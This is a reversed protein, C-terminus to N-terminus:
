LIPRLKACEHSFQPRERTQASFKTNIDAYFLKSVVRIVPGGIVVRAGLAPMGTRGSIGAVSVGARERVSIGTTM